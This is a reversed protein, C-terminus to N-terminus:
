SCRETSQEFSTLALKVSFKIPKLLRDVSKGIEPIKLTTEFILRFHKLVRQLVMIKGGALNELLLMQM